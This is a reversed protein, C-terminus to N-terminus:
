NGLAVLELWIIKNWLYCVFFLFIGFCAPIEISNNKGLDLLLVLKSLSGTEEPIIHSFSNNQLNLVWLFSELERHPLLPSGQAPEISPGAGHTRSERTDEVPLLAEGSVSM